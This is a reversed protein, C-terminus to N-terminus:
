EINWFWLVFWSPGVCLADAKAAKFEANLEDDVAFALETGFGVPALWLECLAAATAANDVTRVSSIFCDFERPDERWDLLLGDALGM